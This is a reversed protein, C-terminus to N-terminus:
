SPRRCIVLSKFDEVPEFAGRTWRALLYEDRLRDWASSGRYFIVLGGRDVRGILADLANDHDRVEGFMAAMEGVHFLTMIDFTPLLRTDITFVNGFALQYSPCTAEEYYALAEASSATLGVCGAGRSAIYTGVKHHLGTGMHFVTQGIAVDSAWEIFQEDAPCKDPQWPWGELDNM